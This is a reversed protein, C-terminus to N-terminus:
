AYQFQKAVSPIHTAIRVWHKWNYSGIKQCKAITETYMVRSNSLIWFTKLENPQKTQM